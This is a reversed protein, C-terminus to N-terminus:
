RMTLIRARFADPIKILQDPFRLKAIAELSQRQSGFTKGPRRGHIDV